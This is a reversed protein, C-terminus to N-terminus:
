ASPPLGDLFAIAEQVTTVRIVKINKAATLADQYNEAPALFYKAGAREAAVVKQQVGGIPGVNGNLDITGTGAVAWGRTLDAPTLLDYVALTFMLGASPGGVIKEPKIEVPFPFDFGTIDTHVIIGIRVSGGPEAPALAPVKVLLSRGDRIIGLSLIAGDNQARLLVQLDNISKVNQGNLHTIIDGIELLAAAPSGPSIADIVVGDSIETVQYGALCLGEAAAISESSALMRHGEEAQSQMTEDPPVIKDEPVIQISTDFRAYVWEFFLIPAQPIVSTLILRGKSEYVYQQPIQVMPEVSATTGPAKLGLNLPVLSATFALLPLVLILSRVLNIPTNFRPNVGDISDLQSTRGGFVLSTLFLIAQVFAISAAAFLLRPHDIVLGSGWLIQFAVLSFGFWTALRTGLSQSRFISWVISRLLRGGDLPFAPNLNIVALVLNFLTLFLSISNFFVNVQLNWVFYSVMALLINLLPGALASLADRGATLGMPWVQAPDALLFLPVKEPIPNRLFKAAVVHALVHIVLSLMVLAM